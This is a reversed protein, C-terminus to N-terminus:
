QTAEALVLAGREALAPSLSETVVGRASCHTIVTRGGRYETVAVIRTPASWYGDNRPLQAIEGYLSDDIRRTVWAM